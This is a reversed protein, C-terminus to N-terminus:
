RQNILAGILFSLFGLGAAGLICYTIAQDLTIKRESESRFFLWGAACLALASALLPLNGYLVRQRQFYPEGPIGPVLFSMGFGFWLGVTGAVFALIGSARLLFRSRM